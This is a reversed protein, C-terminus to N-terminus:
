YRGLGDNSQRSRHGVRAHRALIVFWLYQNLQFLGSPTMEFQVLVFGFV